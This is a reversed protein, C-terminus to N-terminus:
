DALLDLLRGQGRRFGRVGLQRCPAFLDAHNQAAAPRGLREELPRVIEVAPLQGSPIWALDFDPVRGAAALLTRFMLEPSVDHLLDFDAPVSVLEAFAYGEAEVYARLQGNLRAHFPTLALIRRAGLAAFADLACRITTFCPIPRAAAITAGVKTADKAAAAAGEAAAAAMRATLTRDYGPGQAVVIPSAVHLIADVRRAGLYRSAEEVQALAEAYQGEQWGGMGCTVGCALFGDPAARQFDWSIREMVTPSIVGLRCRWGPLLALVPDSM